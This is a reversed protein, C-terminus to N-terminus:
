ENITRLLTHRNMRILHAEKLSSELLGHEIGLEEITSPGGAIRLLARIADPSPIRNLQERNYASLPRGSDAYRHYLESIEACAVGVKAGHLLQRRGAQLFAMEWYHSLHHEAGSAPHSQGFMLMALGSDILAKTLTYIGEESRRGIEEVHHVSVLLAQETMEAAKADYPEGATDRGYHWDFLSTYKGLMDGFGAAVMNRPAACLIDLDAFIALPGIAPVTIKQGRILIPASLSTFGDVSPATPVSLFPVGATYGAYRVIDHITGSGAAVLLDVGHRQIDLLAQVISAEDAVVDGSRNPTIRLIVAKIGIADLSECLREGVIGSTIADAVILVKARGISTIYPAVKRAADREILIPEPFSFDAQGDAMIPNFTTM